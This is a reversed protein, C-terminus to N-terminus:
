LGAGRVVWTPPIDSHQSAEPALPDPEFGGDVAHNSVAGPPPRAQLVAGPPPWALGVWFM